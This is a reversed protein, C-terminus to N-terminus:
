RASRRGRWLSIVTFLLVAAAYGVIGAGIGFTMANDGGAWIVAAGVLATLLTQGLLCGAFLVPSTEAMRERMWLRYSFEGAARMVWAHQFNHAAVLLSTTTVVVAPLPQSALWLVLAINVPIGWKWGLWRAIPNAELVLNPTATWTSIFDMARGFVLAILFVLYEPSGFALSEEM